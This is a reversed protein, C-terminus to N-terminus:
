HHTFSVFLYKFPSLFSDDLSSGGMYTHAYMYVIPHGSLPFIWYKFGHDIADGIPFYLIQLM